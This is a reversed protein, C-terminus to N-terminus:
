KTKTLLLEKATPLTANFFIFDQQSKKEIINERM